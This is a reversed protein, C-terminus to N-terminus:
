RDQQDNVDPLGSHSFRRGAIVLGKNFFEDKVKRYERMYERFYYSASNPHADVALDLEERATEYRHVAQQGNIGLEQDRAVLQYAQAAFSLVGLTGPIWAILHTGATIPVFLSLVVSGFTMYQYRKIQRYSRRKLRATRITQQRVKEKQEGTLGKPPPVPPDGSGSQPGNEMPMSSSVAILILVFFLRYHLLRGVAPTIKATMQKSVRGIILVSPFFPKAVPSPARLRPEQGLGGTVQDAARWAAPALQGREHRARPRIDSQYSEM